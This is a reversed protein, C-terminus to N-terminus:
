ANEEVALMGVCTSNPGVTWVQGDRICLRPKVFRAAEPTRALAARVIEPTQVAVYELARGDTEVAALCMAPTQHVVYRLVEASNEGMVAYTDSTIAAVCLEETQFEVPITKLMHPDHQALTLYLEYTRFEPPCQALEHTYGRSICKLWDHYTREEPQKLISTAM